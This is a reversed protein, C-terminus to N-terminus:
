KKVNKFKVGHRTEPKKSDFEISIDIIELKKLVDHVAEFTKNELVSVPLYYTNSDLEIPMLNSTGYKGKIKEAIEKSISIVKYTGM